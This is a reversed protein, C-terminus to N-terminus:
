STLKGCDFSRIIWTDSSPTGALTYICLGPWGFPQVGAATGTDTIDYLTTGNIISTLRVQTGAANTRAEFRLSDGANVAVGAGSGPVTNQGNGDDLIDIRGGAGGGAVMLYLEGGVGGTPPILSRNYKLAIGAGITGTLSDFVVQAFINRESFLTPIIITPVFVPRYYSIPNITGTGIFRAKNTQISGYASASVGGGGPNNQLMQTWNNTTLTNLSDRDPRVFTDSFSTVPSPALTQKYGM